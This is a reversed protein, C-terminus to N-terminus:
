APGCCESASSDVEVRLREYPGGPEDAVGCSVLVQRLHSSLTVRSSASTTAGQGQPQSLMDGMVDLLAVV